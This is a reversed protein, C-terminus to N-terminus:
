GLVIVKVIFTQNAPLGKINQININSENRVFSVFVGATPFITTDSCIANIVILGEINTQGNQLKFTTKNKPTGSPDVVVTFETVTSSINDKFTLKNNLADYLESFSSNLTIGLKKILDENEPFDQELLRRYSSLKM